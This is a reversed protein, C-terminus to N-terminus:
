MKLLLDRPESDVYAAGDGPNLTPLYCEGTRTRHTKNQRSSRVTRHRTDQTKHKSENGERTRETDGTNKGRKHM